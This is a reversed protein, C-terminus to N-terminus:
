DLDLGLQAVVEGQVYTPGVGEPFVQAVRRALLNEERDVQVIAPLGIGRHLLYQILRAREVDEARYTLADADGLLGCSRWEDVREAPEGVRRGVELATLPESM